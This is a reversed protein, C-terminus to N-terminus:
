CVMGLMVTLRSSVLFYGVQTGALVPFFIFQAPSGASWPGIFLVSNVAFLACSEVLMTGIAKYLGTAGNSPGFAERLNRNHLILRAVIMLTLLINLSFSISFFPIGFTMIRSADMIVNRARSSQYIFVVGM